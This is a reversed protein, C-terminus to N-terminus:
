YNTIHLKSLVKNKISISTNPNEGSYEQLTKSDVFNGLIGEPSPKNIDSLAIAPMVIIGNRTQKECDTIEIKDVKRFDSKRKLNNLHVYGGNKTKYLIAKEKKTTCVMRGSVVFGGTSYEEYWSRQMINGIYLNNISM